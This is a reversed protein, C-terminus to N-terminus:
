RFTAEVGLIDIDVAEVQKAGLKLAGVSLIGSGSGIDFVTKDKLDIKRFSRFM